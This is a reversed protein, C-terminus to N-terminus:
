KPFDISNLESTLEKISMFWYKMLRLRRVPDPHNKIYNLADVNFKSVEIEYKTRYHDDCAMIMCRLQFVIEQKLKIMYSIDYSVSVDPIKYYNALHLDLDAVKRQFDLFTAM